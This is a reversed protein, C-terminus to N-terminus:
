RAPVEEVYVWSLVQEILDPSLHPALAAQVTEIWDGIHSHAPMLNVRALAAMNVSPCMRLLLRVADIVDGCRCQFGVIRYGAPIPLSQQNHHRDVPAPQHESFEHFFTSTTKAIIATEFGIYWPAEAFTDANTRDVWNSNVSLETEDTMVM